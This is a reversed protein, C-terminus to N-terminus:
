RKGQYFFLASRGEECEKIWNNLRKEADVSQASEWKSLHTSNRAEFDIIASFDELKPTSLIHNKTTLTMKMFRIIGEKNFCQHSISSVM